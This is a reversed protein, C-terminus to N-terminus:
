LVKKIGKSLLIKHLGWYTINCWCLHPASYFYHKEFVIYMIFIFFLPPIVFTSLQSANKSTKVELISSARVSGLEWGLCVTELVSFFFSVFFYAKGLVWNRFNITLLSKDRNSQVFTHMGGLFFFFLSLYLSNHYIIQIQCNYM